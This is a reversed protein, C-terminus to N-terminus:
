FEGLEDLGVRKVMVERQEPHFIRQGKFIAYHPLYKGRLFDTVEAATEFLWLRPRGNSHPDSVTFVTFPPIRIQAM